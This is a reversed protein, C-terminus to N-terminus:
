RPAHGRDLYVVFAPFQLFLTGTARVLGGPPGRHRQDPVLGGAHHARGLLPRPGARLLVDAGLLAPRRAARVQQQRGLGGARHRLRRPVTIAFIFLMGVDLDAIQLTPWRLRGFLTFPRGGYPVVAVALFATSSPWSRRRSSSGSTRRGRADARGQLLAQHRRRRAAPARVPGHPEPRPPVAHLRPRAARHLDDRSFLSLLSASSSRRVKVAGIVLEQQVLPSM